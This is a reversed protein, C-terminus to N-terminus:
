TLNVNLNAKWTAFFKVTTFFKGALACSALSALEIGPEPPNGPIPFPLGNWHEQRCLEMSLSLKLAVTWSPAFLQVCSLSQIYLM